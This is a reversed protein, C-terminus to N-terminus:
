AALDRPITQVRDYCFRRRYDDFTRYAWASCPFDLLKAASSFTQSTGHVLSSNQHVIMRDESWQCIGLAGLATRAKGALLADLHGYYTM